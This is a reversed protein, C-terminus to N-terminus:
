SFNRAKPLDLNIAKREWFSKPDGIIDLMMKILNTTKADSNEVIVATKFGAMKMVNFLALSPDGQIKFPVHVTSMLPKIDFVLWLGLLGTLYIDAGRGFYEPKSILGEFSWLEMPRYFQTMRDGENVVKLSAGLNVSTGFDTIRVEMERNM